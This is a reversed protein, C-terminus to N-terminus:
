LDKTQWYHRPLDFSAPCPNSISSSFLYDLFDWSAEKQHSSRAMAASILDSSYLTARYSLISLIM